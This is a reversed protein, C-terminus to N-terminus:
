KQEQQKLHKERDTMDRQIFYAAAPIVAGSLLLSPVIWDSGELSLFYWELYGMGLGMPILVLLATPIDPKADRRFAGALWVAAGMLTTALITFGLCVVLLLRSDATQLYRQVGEQGMMKQLALSILVLWITTGCAQFHWLTALFHATRTEKVPISLGVSAGLLMGPFAVLGAAVLWGIESISLPPNRWFDERLGALAHGIALVGMGTVFFGVAGFFRMLPPCLYPFRRPKTDPTSSRTGPGVERNKWACMHAVKLQGGFSEMLSDIKLYNRIVGLSQIGRM